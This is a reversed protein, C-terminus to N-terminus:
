PSTTPPIGTPFIPSSISFTNYTLSGLTGCSFQAYQRIPESSLITLSLGSILDDALQHHVQGLSQRLWFRFFKLYGAHGQIVRSYYSSIRTIATQKETTTVGSAEYYGLIPVFQSTNILRCHGSGDDRITFSSHFERIFSSTWADLESSNGSLTSGNINQSVHDFEHNLTSIMTFYNTSRIVMPGLIVYNLGRHKFTYGANNTLTGRGTVSSKTNLNDDYNVVLNTATFAQLHAPIPQTDSASQSTRDSVTVSTGIASQVLATKQASTTASAVQTSWDAPAGTNGGYYSYQRQIKRSIDGQQLTHTLEHALLHKGRNTNPHYEGISFYIDNGYTFAKAHISESMESAQSDSHIKVSSFDASFANEMFGRTNQPLASGGGKSSNLSAAFSSSVSIGSNGAEAKRMIPKKKEEEECHACKRQLSKGILGTVPKVTETSSMRMVRDAMADAEQEYMDGPENVTLKAQVFPKANGHLMAPKAATNNKHSLSNM